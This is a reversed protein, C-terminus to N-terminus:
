FPEFCDYNRIRHILGDKFEFIMCFRATIVQGTRLPGVDASMVGTWRAEMVVSAGSEITSTIEFTQSRLIARSLRSRAITETRDCTQGNRNLVNPFETQLYDPHLLTRAVDDSWAFHESTRIFEEALSTLKSM